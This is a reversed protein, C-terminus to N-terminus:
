AAKSPSGLLRFPTADRLRRVVDAVTAGQIRMQDVARRVIAGVEQDADRRYDDARIQNADSCLSCGGRDFM